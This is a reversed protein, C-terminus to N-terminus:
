RKRINLLLGWKRNKPVGNRFKLFPTRVICFFVCGKQISMGRFISEKDFPM